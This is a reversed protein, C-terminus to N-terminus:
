RLVKNRGIIIKRIESKESLTMAPLVGPVDSDAFLVPPRNSLYRQFFTQLFNVFASRYRRYWIILYFIVLRSNASSNLIESAVTEPNGSDSSMQTGLTSKGLARRAGPSFDNRNKDM